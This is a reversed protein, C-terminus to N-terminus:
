TQDLNYEKLPPTQPLFLLVSSSIALSTKSDRECMIQM